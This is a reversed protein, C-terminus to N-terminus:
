TELVKWASTSVSSILDVKRVCTYSCLISRACFLVVSGARQIYRLHLIAHSSSSLSVADRAVVGHEYRSECACSLDLTSARFNRPLHKMLHLTSLKYGDVVALDAIFTVRIEQLDVEDVEVDNIAMTSSPLVSIERSYREQVSQTEASFIELVISAKVASGERDSPPSEGPLEPQEELLAVEFVHGGEVGEFSLLVGQTIARELSITMAQVGNVKVNIRPASVRAFVRDDDRTATEALQFYDAGGPTLADTQIPEAPRSVRVHVFSTSSSVISGDQLSTMNFSADNSAVSGAHKGNEGDKKDQSHVVSETLDFVLSTTQGASTCVVSTEQGLISSAGAEIVMETWREESLTVDQIPSVDSPSPGMSAQNAMAVIANGVKDHLMTCREDSVHSWAFIGVNRNAVGLRYPGNCPALADPLM